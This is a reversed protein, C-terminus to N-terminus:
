ENVLSKGDPAQTMRKSCGEDHHKIMGMRQAESNKEPPQPIQKANVPKIRRPIKRPNCGITAVGMERIHHQLESPKVTLRSNIGLIHMSIFTPLGPM